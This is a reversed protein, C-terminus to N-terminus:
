ACGHCHMTAWWQAGAHGHNGYYLVPVAMYVRITASFIIADYLLYGYAVPNQSHYSDYTCGGGGRGSVEWGTLPVSYVSLECKVDRM